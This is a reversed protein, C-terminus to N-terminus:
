ILMERPFRRSVEQIRSQVGRPPTLPLLSGDKIDVSSARWNEDGDREQFFVVHRNTYAWQFFSSIPRDTVRTVPRAAALDDVPAIWLNRVGDVPAVYGVWAGDFSLQASAVDPDGFFTERPVLARAPAPQARALRPLLLRSTLSSATGVLFSRRSSRIARM